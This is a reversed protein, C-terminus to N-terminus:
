PPAVARVCQPMATETLGDERGPLDCHVAEREKRQAAAAPRWAFRARPLAHNIAPVLWSAWFLAVIPGHPKFLVWQWVFAAVAVAVAYAIRANRDQPTTMPDSIMFFAFLLVAGNAMQRLWIAAGPDWAYDLWVLRGALLLAWTGLFALSVDSRSIRRTVLGGLALFWLAALSSSGWQGPSLWAGPIWAWAAYAAFNAPNLIHSKCDAPGARLLYKSSMAVCALLPHVWWAEARVLISIGFSSILASLYGSWGARTPLQLGWQWAAQTVLASAFTLVVQVPTLAFDRTLAGIALFSALFLIQFWRADLRAAWAQFRRM